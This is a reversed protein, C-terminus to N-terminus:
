SVTWYDPMFYDTYIGYLGKEHWEEWVDLTNITHAFTRVGTSSLDSLLEESLLSEPMTVAWPKKSRAFDALKSDAGTMYLTLIVDKYGMDIAKDYEEYSYVQPILRSIDDGAADRIDELLSINNRKIDTIARCTPHRRLWRLLDDLDMVTLDM